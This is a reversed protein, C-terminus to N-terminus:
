SNKKTSIKAYMEIAKLLLGSPEARGNEVKRIYVDGNKSLGLEKALQRQTLGLDKRIQKINMIDILFRKYKM